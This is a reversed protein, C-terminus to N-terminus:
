WKKCKSEFFNKFELKYFEIMTDYAIQITTSYDKSSVNIGEWLNSLSMLNILYLQISNNDYLIKIVEKYNELLSLDAYIKKIKEENEPLTEPLNKSFDKYIIDDENIVFGNIISPKINPMLKQFINCIMKNKRAIYEFDFNNEIDKYKEEDFYSDTMKEYLFIEICKIIKILDGILDKMYQNPEMIINTDDLDIIKIKNKNDIMINNCGYIDGHYFMNMNFQKLEEMMKILQEVIELTRLNNNEDFKNSLLKADEIYEFLYTKFMKGGESINPFYAYGKIHMFHDLENIVKIKKIIDSSLNNINPIADGVNYTHKYILTSENGKKIVCDMSPIYLTEGFMGKGLHKMEQTIDNCCILINDM